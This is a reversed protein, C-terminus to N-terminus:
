LEVQPFVCPIYTHHCGALLCCIDASIQLELWRYPIYVQVATNAPSQSPFPRRTGRSSSSSAESKRHLYIKFAWHQGARTRSSIATAGGGGGGGGGCIVCGLPFPVRSSGERRAAMPKQAEAVENIREMVGECCMYPGLLLLVSTNGCVTGDNDWPRLPEASLTLLSQHLDEM